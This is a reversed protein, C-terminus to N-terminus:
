EESKYVIKGEYMTMICKAVVSIGDFPTSKGMSLFDKSDIKYQGNLDFVCLNAHNKKKIEEGIGFRKKPNDFMLAILKELTIKKTKVLYTYLVSFATELGVVGMLSDKLGKAKEKESHPAHDTAIMDITGDNLAKILADRDLESRIPPNMKFCGEDKLDKDCLVLYHPATECTIDAGSKKAEKIKEISEKASVHCVHYKCHTKKILETDREIPLYESKSCIGKHTNKRCYEGDHIYGGNLLSNDECHAAIIKDLSKAKEMAKEMIEKNQVGKGDDSFGIVFGSMEEMDSLKEGMEGATIAGYPYVAVLADKDILDLEAKLNKLSDPVPNLNPMACVAQYGGAAAAGTATKITEKYSFGPERLHVHVDIFGPFIYKDKLDFLVADSDNLSECIDCIFGDKVLIDRKLFQGNIYVDAGKLLYKM